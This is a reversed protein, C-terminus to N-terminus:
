RACVVLSECLSRSEIMQPKSMLGKAASSATILRKLCFIDSYSFKGRITGPFKKSRTGPCCTSNGAGCFLLPGSFFVIGIGCKSQIM